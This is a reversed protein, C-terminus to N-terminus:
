LVVETPDITTNVLNWNKPNFTKMDRLIRNLSHRPRRSVYTMRRPSADRPAWYWNGTRDQAAQYWIGDFITHLTYQKGIFRIYIDNSMRTPSDPHAIIQSM